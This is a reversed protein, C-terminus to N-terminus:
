REGRGSNRTSDKKYEKEENPRGMLPNNIFCIIQLSQCLPTIARDKTVLEFSCYNFYYINGSTGFSIFELPKPVHTKTTTM